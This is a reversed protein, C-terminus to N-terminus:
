SDETDQDEDKEDEDNKLYSNVLQMRKLPVIM